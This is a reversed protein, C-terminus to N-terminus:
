IFSWCAMLHVTALSHLVLFLIVRHPRSVEAGVLLTTAAVQKLPVCAAHCGCLVTCSCPVSLRRTVSLSYGDLGAPTLVSTGANGQSSFGRLRM